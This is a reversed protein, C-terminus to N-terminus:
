LNASLKTIADLLAEKKSSFCQSNDWHSQYTLRWAYTLNGSPRQIITDVLINHNNFCANYVKGDCSPFNKNVYLKPLKQKAM